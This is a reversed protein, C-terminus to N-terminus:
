RETRGPYAILSATHEARARMEAASARMEAIEARMAAILARGKRVEALCARQDSIERPREPTRGDHLRESFPVEMLASGAADCIVFACALPATGEHLLDACLDPITRCAELYAADLSPWDLGVRDRELGKPTCLHFYFQPM